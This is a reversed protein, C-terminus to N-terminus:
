HKQWESVGKWAQYVITLTRVRAKPSLRLSCAFMEGKVALKACGVGQNMEVRKRQYTRESRVEVDVCGEGQVTVGLVTKEGDGLPLNARFLQEEQAAEGGQCFAVLDQGCVGLTEDGVRGLVRVGCFRERAGNERVLVCMEGSPTVFSLYYGEVGSVATVNTVNAADAVGFLDCADALRVCTNGDFRYVGDAAAFWLADNVQVVSEPFIAGGGYAVQEVCFDRAAGLAVLKSISRLRFACVADGLAALAVIAGCGDLLTIEGADDASHAFNLPEAPASYAITEGDKCAFVRDHFYCFPGDFVGDLAQMKGSAGVKYLTQGAKVLPVNVGAAMPLIAAARGFFEGELEMAGSETYLEAVGGGYRVLWAREGAFFCDDIALIERVDGRAFSGVGSPLVRAAMGLGIRLDGRSVDCGVCEYAYLTKGAGNKSAVGGSAVDAFRVFEVSKRESM